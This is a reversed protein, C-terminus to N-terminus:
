EDRGTLVRRYIQVLKAVHQEIGFNERAIQYSMNGLKNRLHGDNVLSILAAALQEPKGPEILIGNVGDQILDPVGGVKTAIVPLGCAMAELVAIPMGEYHSPFIFIEAKKFFDFKEPGVTLPHLTVRNEMKTSIIQEKLRQFEDPNLAGGVVDISLPVHRDRISIAAELLDFSGKAKGIYGLYLVKEASSNKNDSLHFEAIDSYPSIDIAVPLYYMQNDAMISKLQFWEKSLVIMGDTLRMVKLFISKWLKSREYYLVAVSCHPHILVRCGFVRSIAACISNKIFSFGYSTGIDVIQPHTTVLMRTFNWCDAMAYFLNSLTPKGTNSLERKQSSTQVFHLDVLQALSSHLLTQYYFAVGGMPPPIAGTVLVRIKTSSRNNKSKM